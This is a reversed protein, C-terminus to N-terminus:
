RRLRWSRFADLLLFGILTLLAFVFVVIGLITAVVQIAAWLGVWDMASM